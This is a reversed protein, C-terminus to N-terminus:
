EFANEAFGMFLGDVDHQDGTTVAATNATDIRMLIRVLEDLLHHFEGMPVPMGQLADAFSMRAQVPAASHQDDAIPVCAFHRSTPWLRSGLRALDCREFERAVPHQLVLDVLGRELGRASFQRLMRDLFDPHFQAVHHRPDLFAASTSLVFFQPPLARRARKRPLPRRAGGTLRSSLRPTFAVPSPEVYHTLQSRLRMAIAAISALATSRRKQIWQWWVVFRPAPTRIEEPAGSRFVSDGGFTASRV